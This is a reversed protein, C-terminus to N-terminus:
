RQGPHSERICLACRAREMDRLPHEGSLAAQSPKKPLNFVLHIVMAVPDIRRKLAEHPLHVGIDVPIVPM